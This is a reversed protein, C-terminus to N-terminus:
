YSLGDKLPSIGQLLSNEIYDLQNDYYSSM